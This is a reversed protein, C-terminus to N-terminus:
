SGTRIKRGRSVVGARHNKTQRKQKKLPRVFDVKGAEVDVGAIQISIPDGVRIKQGTRRGTLVLSKPEFEFFDDGIESIHLLGDIPFQDLTIFLGFSTVSTVRGLFTEGIHRGIFEAKLISHIEREGQEALRETKSCHLAIEELAQQPLELDEGADLKLIGKLLRHVILDPYRRIPSTFHTYREFGLAFHPACGSSYSAQKMCRL